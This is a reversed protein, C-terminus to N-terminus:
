KRVRRAAPPKKPMTESGSGGVVDFKAVTNYEVGVSSRVWGGVDGPRVHKWKKVRGDAKKSGEGESFWRGVRRSTCGGKAM